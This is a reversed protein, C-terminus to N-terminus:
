FSAGGVQAHFLSFDTWFTENLSIPSLKRKTAM